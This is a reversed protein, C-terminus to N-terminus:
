RTLSSVEGDVENLNDGSVEQQEVKGRQAQNKEKFDQSSKCTNLKPEIKKQVIAGPEFKEPVEFKKGRKKHHALEEEIKNIMNQSIKHIQEILKFGAACQDRAVSDVKKKKNIIDIPQGHKTFDIVSLPDIITINGSSDALLQLDIIALHSAGMASGIKECSQKLNTAITFMKNMDEPNALKKEIERNNEEIIKKQNMCFAEQNSNMRSEIIISKVLPGIIMEGMKFDILTADPIWDMIVSCQKKETDNILKGHTRLAPFGNDRLITLMNIEDMMNKISAEDNATRAVATKGDDNPTVTKFSGQYSPNIETKNQM